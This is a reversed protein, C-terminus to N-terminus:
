RLHLINIYQELGNTYNLDNDWKWYFHQMYKEIGRYSNLDWPTRIICLCPKETSIAYAIPSSQIGIFFKCSDIAIYMEELNSFIYYSKLKIKLYEPLNNYEEIDCSIFICENNELIISVYDLIHKYTTSKFHFLIEGCWNTCEGINPTDIWRIPLSIPPLQYVRTFLDLVMDCDIYKRWISLNTIGPIDIINPNDDYRLEQIYAQRKMIPILENYVDELPKQFKDLQNVLIVIGKRNTMEYLKKVIYLQLLFDGLLGSAFYHLPSEETLQGVPPNIEIYSKCERLSSNYLQNIINKIRFREDNDNHISILTNIYDNDKKEKRIKDSDVWIKKNINYIQQYIDNHLIIKDKICLNLEETEKQIYELKVTNKIEESKIQLISMRDFAEGLSIEIKNFPAVKNYMKKAIDIGNEKNSKFTNIMDIDIENPDVWWDEFECNKGMFYVIVDSCLLLYGANTLIDRLIIKLNDGVRYSDHEITIIKSRIKDFPFNNVALFTADDVDFSIYDLTNQLITHKQIMNDWKLTTIDCQIFNSNRVNSWDFYEIDLNISKWGIKLFESINSSINHSNCGIDLCTGNHKNKLIRHVFLDQGAQSKSSIDSLIIQKIKKCLNINSYKKLFQECYKVSNKLCDRISTEELCILPSYINRFRSSKSIGIPKKVSLAFDITSSIEDNNTYLFINMDNTSLFNLIDQTTFFEQTIMLKIGSKLNCKIINELFLEPIPAFYAIPIVLKIIAIDYQENIIKVINDFGKNIMAFGFSGFIPVNDEKYEIFNSIEINTSKTYKINEFIPRPIGIDPDVSSVIDFMHSPGFHLICINRFNKNITTSNIWNMTMNCYNYIISSVKNNIDCINNYEEVNEIEHYIYNIDKKKLINYVQLGYQYIGCNKIKNNLFLVNLM